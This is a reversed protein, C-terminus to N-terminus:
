HEIFESFEGEVYRRRTADSDRRDKNEEKKGHRGEKQWRELIAQVYRWNRKNREVAIGIAEKIWESSYTDEAEGLTEAIIPTLPGINEEYLRFINPPEKVLQASFNAQKNPNWKGNRIANLATRGRPSNLFYYVEEGESGSLFIKLLTGREVALNLAENLATQSDKQSSALSKLFAEDKNFDDVRLYRFATEMKSLLWFMYLTVKLEGLHNIQPLLQTFFLEPIAFLDEEDESFGSFSTM